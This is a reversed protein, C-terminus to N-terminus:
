TVDALPPVAGQGGHPRQGYLSSRVIRTRGAQSEPITVQPSEEAQETFLHQQVPSQCFSDSPLMSPFTNKRKEHDDQKYAM